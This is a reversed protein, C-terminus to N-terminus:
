DQDPFPMPVNAMPGYSHLTYYPGTTGGAPMQFQNANPPIISTGAPVLMGPPPGSPSGLFTNIVQSAIDPRAIQLKNKLQTPSRALYAWSWSTGYNAKLWNFNKESPSQTNASFGFDAHWPVPTPPTPLGTGRPVSNAPPNNVPPPTTAPVGGDIDLLVANLTAIASVIGARQTAQTM